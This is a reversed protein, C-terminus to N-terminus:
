DPTQSGYYQALERREDETLERAIMRMTAYVDNKRAEQAFAVLQRQVYAALQGRLDPAGNTFGLPGHCAACPAIGRKPDGIFVLRRAPDTQSVDREAFNVPALKQGNLHKGYYAAVDASDKRSLAKAIAGMVGSSRTGSRYDELQKYITSADLRDLRAVVLALNERPNQHCAACTHALLEGHRADGSRIQALTDASWALNTSTPPSAQQLGGSPIGLGRCIADWLGLQGANLQYRTVVAFGLVASIALIIIMIIWVSSSSLPIPDPADTDSM